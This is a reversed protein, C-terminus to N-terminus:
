TKRGKIMDLIVSFWQPVRKPGMTRSVVRWLKDAMGIFFEISSFPVQIRNKSM